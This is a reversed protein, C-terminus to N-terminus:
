HSRRGVTTSRSRGNYVAAQPADPCPQRPGSVPQSAAGDLGESRNANSKGCTSPLVGGAPTRECPISTAKSTRGDRMNGSDKHVGTREHHEYGDM